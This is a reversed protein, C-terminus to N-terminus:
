DLSTKNQSDTWCHVSKINKRSSRKTAEVLRVVLVAAQLELRPISLTKVPAVKAKSHVLQVQFEHESIQWRYYVMAAFSRQSADCFAHISVDQTVMGLFLHRPIQVRDISILEQQWQKWIVQLDDPITDDWYSQRRWWEQMLVDLWFFFGLPHYVSMVTSMIARNTSPVDIRKGRYTLM